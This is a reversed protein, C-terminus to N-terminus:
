AVDAGVLRQEAAAEATGGGDVAREKDVTVGGQMAVQRDALAATRSGEHSTFVVTRGRAVASRVVDDLVARAEDDLSAHPEDLLWLEPDRATLVALGVRRRQGASLRDARTQALAGTLGLRGSSTKSVAPDVGSARLFFSVNEEVTLDGYLATTHGLFGVRRRLQRSEEALNRGLITATGETFGLLGAILRLLSTKGAGNPGTVMVSAGSEIELDVGALVPFRDVVAVVSHLSVALAGM